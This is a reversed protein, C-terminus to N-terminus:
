ESEEARLREKVSVCLTISQVCWLMLALTTLVVRVFKDTVDNLFKFAVHSRVISTAVDARNM